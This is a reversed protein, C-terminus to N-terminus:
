RRGTEPRGTVIERLTEIPLKPTGDAYLLGNTELGTDMYQTYCVGCLEPSARLAEFQARLADAYEAESGASTYGWSEEDAGHRALSVGGFETVMV